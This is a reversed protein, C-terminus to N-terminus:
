VNHWGAKQMQRAVESSFSGRPRILGKGFGQAKQAAFFAIHSARENSEHCSGSYHRMQDSVHQGEPMIPHAGLSRAIMNALLINWDPHRLRIQGGAKVKPLPRKVPKTIAFSMDM